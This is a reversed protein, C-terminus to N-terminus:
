KLRYTKYGKYEIVSIESNKELESIIVEPYNNKRSELFSKIEYQNMPHRKIISIVAQIDDKEESFFNDSNINEMSIAGLTKVAFELNEKEPIEVWQEAPARLPVNIYIKDYKIQKLINKFNLISERDDNIGKILMIEIWIQGKFEDSFKIIGNVSDEFNMKGFPRNIKKWTNKDPSDLSPLVIDANKINERVSKEYLLAGNTIVAVPKETLKKIDNIIIDLDRYLLPEG